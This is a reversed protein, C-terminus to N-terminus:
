SASPELRQRQRQRVWQVRKRDRPAATSSESAKFAAYLALTLSLSRRDDGYQSRLSSM